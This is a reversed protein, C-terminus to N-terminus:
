TFFGFLNNVMVFVILVLLVIEHWFSKKLKLMYLSLLASVTIFSILLHFPLLSGAFPASALMIVALWILLITKRRIEITKESIRSLGAFVGALLFIGQFATFIIFGTNSVTRLDISPVFSIFFATIRAKAENFWFYYIVLFLFPTALGIFSSIWERPSITRFVIFSILILLYIFIFPFYFMSGIAAMFGTSYDLDLHDPKSYSEFLRDIIRLLLVISIGVPHLTLFIPYYSVLCLFVFAALSSNKPLIEHKTLLWNLYFASFLNVLFGLIVALFPLDSLLFCLLHYLPVPGSAEPVPPPAYFARSWLFLGTIFITLYQSFFSSRFFRLFIL